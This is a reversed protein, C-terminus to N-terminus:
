GLQKVEELKAKLEIIKNQYLQIKNNYDAKIQNERTLAEHLMTKANIYANDAHVLQELRLVLEQALGNREGQLTVISSNNANLIRMAADFLERYTWKSGAKKEEAKMVEMKKLTLGYEKVYDHFNRDRQQQLLEEKTLPNVKMEPKDTETSM